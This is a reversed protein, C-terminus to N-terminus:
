AEIVMAEILTGASVPPSGAPIQGLLDCGIFSSMTGNGQGDM